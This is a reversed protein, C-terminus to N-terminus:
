ELVLYNGDECLLFGSTELLMGNVPGVPPTPPIGTTVYLGSAGVAMGGIWGVSAPVVTDFVAVIAGAANRPIGGAYGAIPGAQLSLQGTATVGYGNVFHTPNSASYCIHGDDTVAIGAYRPTSALPTYSVVRM